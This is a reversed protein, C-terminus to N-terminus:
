AMRALDLLRDDKLDKVLLHIEEFDKALIEHCIDHGVVVFHMRDDLNGVSDPYMRRRFEFHERHLDSDLVKLVSSRCTPGTSQYPHFERSYSRVAVAHDFKLECIYDAPGSTEDWCGFYVSCEEESFILLIDGQPNRWCRLPIQIATSM